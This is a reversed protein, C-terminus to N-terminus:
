APGPTAAARRRVRRRVLAVVAVLLALPGGVVAALAAWWGATEPWAAPAGGPRVAGSRIARDAVDIGTVGAPPALLTRVGATTGLALV